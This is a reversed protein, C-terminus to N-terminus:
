QSRYSNKHKLNKLQASRSNLKLEFIATPELYGVLQPKPQTFNLTYASFHLSKMIRYLTTKVSSGTSSIRIFHSQPRVKNFM